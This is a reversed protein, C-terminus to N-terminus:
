LSKHAYDWPEYEKGNKEEESGCNPRLVTATGVASVARELERGAGIGLDAIVEGIGEVVVQGAGCLADTPDIDLEPVPM